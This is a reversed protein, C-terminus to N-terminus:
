RKLRIPRRRRRMLGEMEGESSRDWERIAAANSKHKRGNVCEVDECRERACKMPCSMNDRNADGPCILDFALDDAPVSAPELVLTAALNLCLLVIQRSIHSGVVLLRDEIDHENPLTHLVLQPPSLLLSDHDDYWLLVEVFARSSPFYPIPGTGETDRRELTLQVTDEM